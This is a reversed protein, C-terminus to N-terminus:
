CLFATKSHPNAILNRLDKGLADFLRRNFRCLKSQLLTRDAAPATRIALQLDMGPPLHWAVIFTIAECVTQLRVRTSLLYDASVRGSKELREYIESLLPKEDTEIRTKEALAAPLSQGSAALHRFQDSMRGHRRKVVPERRGSLYVHLTRPNVLLDGAATLEGSDTYNGACLIALENIRALTLWKIRNDSSSLKSWETFRAALWQESLRFPSSENELKENLGLWLAPSPDEGRCGHPLTAFNNHPRVETPRLM